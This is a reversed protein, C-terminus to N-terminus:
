SRKIKSQMERITKGYDKSSYIAAGAVFIDAGAEAIKGINELNIGGDVEIPIERHRELKKELVRIKQYSGEIFEQGGFGPNVSMILILDLYDYVHDLEFLPTAPNLAVGAKKGFSKISQLTRDLHTCAEVHVTIIDAGAKAFAEVYRLPEQVMLHVDLPLQTIKRLSAVVPVGISINPVFMGDMVDIHILGAGAKEVAMVEEGLRAFDCSLISPAILRSQKKLALDKM